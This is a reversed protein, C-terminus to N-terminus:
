KIYKNWYNFIKNVTCATNRNRISIVPEKEPEKYVRDYYNKMIDKLFRLHRSGNIWEEYRMIRVRSLKKNLLQLQKIVKEKAMSKMNVDCSSSAFYDGSLRRIRKRASCTIDIIIEDGLGRLVAPPIILDGIKKSENESLFVPLDNKGRLHPLIEMFINTEFQQQNQKKENKMAFRIEGFVSSAHGACKELHIVPFGPHNKQIYELIESKGCGTKGSLSIIPISKDYLLDHVAKRFGKQGNQLVLAEMGYKNLMKAVYRSRLGGRWCYLIIKGGSRGSAAEKISEIYRQEKEKAYYIALSLALEQSDKMYILGVEHRERDNLIPMNISFPIPNKLHEKESRVDVITYNNSSKINKLIELFEHQSIEACHPPTDYREVSKLDYKDIQRLLIELEEKQSTDKSDNM